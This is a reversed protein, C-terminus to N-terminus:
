RKYLFCAVQHGSEVEYFAPKQQSCIPMAKLCRPHFRCGPPPNLYNPIRGPIGAAIGGGSIKPVSALLGLTYPHLPHAFLEKARAVEVMTGAYMVYIRDTLERAVGLSHTILIISTGKEEVLERLLRLIQDQITVDLSTGPEDAILLDRQTTIAMSICVRQRMGGSLQIPYNHLMRAQDPLSVEKLVRMAIDRVLEKEKKPAGKPEKHEKHSALSYKIVDQIQTGITFVPNLAATPDQFIMAIGQSRVRQLEGGRMKLTDKGKFLIEGEPIHSDKEPLIRLIAKMTTTKGCGTEGVLGVKEGKGVTFNVGDLVKLYGGFVRYWVHLDKINLILNETM